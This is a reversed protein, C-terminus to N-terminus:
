SEGDQEEVIINKLLFQRGSLIDKERSGCNPCVGECRAVNYIEGCANCRGEGPIIEIELKSGAVIPHDETVMDYYEEFFYPLMGTLEGIQLVVGYVKQIHNERAVYEVEKVVQCLVGIEHM